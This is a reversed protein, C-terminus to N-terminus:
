SKSELRVTLQGNNRRDPFVVEYGYKRKWTPQDWVSTYPSRYNFFLTAKRRGLKVIRAIAEPTPHKFYAGNTSILFRPCDLVEMLGPSLNGGSAHHPVKLADIKLRKAQGKFQNISQVLRDAHADASLLLRRGRHEALLAISSGNPEGSEAQFRRLALQDIDIPGYAEFGREKSHRTVGPLLGANKCEQKWVPILKDLKKRDPSFLTLQMGGALRLTKLGRAGLCVAKGKWKRNWPLGKELMLRSLREGQVAGFTELPVNMLHDYGNFWIDKFNGAIAPELLLRLVGEIHDRDVHTVILLEFRRRIRPQAEIRKILENATATRGGDILIQHPSTSSGYRIWLCDGERAPLM